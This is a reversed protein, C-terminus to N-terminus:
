AAQAQRAPALAAELLMREQALPGEEVLARWEQLFKVTRPGPAPGIARCASEVEAPALLLRLSALRALIREDELALLAGFVAGRNLALSRRIWETAEIAAAPDRSDAPTTNVGAATYAHTAAAVIDDDVDGLACPVLAARSEMGARIREHLADLAKRRVLPSEAPLRHWYSILANTMPSM